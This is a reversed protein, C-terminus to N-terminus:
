KPNLLEVRLDYSLYADFGYIIDVYDDIIQVIAKRRDETIDSLSPALFVEELASNIAAMDSQDSCHFACLLAEIVAQEVPKKKYTQEKINGGLLVMTLFYFPIRAFRINCSKWADTDFFPHKFQVERNIGQFVFNNSTKKTKERLCILGIDSNKFYLSFNEDIKCEDHKGRIELAAQVSIAQSIPVNRSFCQMIQYPEGQIYICDNQNDVEFVNDPIFELPIVGSLIDNRCFCSTSCSMGQFSGDKLDMELYAAEDYTRTFDVGSRAVAIGDKPNRNSDCKARRHIVTSYPHSANREKETFNKDSPIKNIINNLTQQQENM